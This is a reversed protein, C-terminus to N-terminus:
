FERNDYKRWEDAKWVDSNWPKENGCWHIISPNERAKIMAYTTEPYIKAYVNWKEPLHGIDKGLAINIIDQDLLSLNYGNQTKKIRELWDIKRLNKLNMVMVGSNIYLHKLRNKRAQYRYMPDQVGAVYKPEYEWLKAIDDLVILDCDLYIVKDVDKLIFPAFLRFCASTTIHKYDTRAKIVSIDPVDLCVVNFGEFHRKDVGIIYFTVDSSTNALISRMVVKSQSIYNEDINLLINIM